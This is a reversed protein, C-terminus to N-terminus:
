VTTFTEHQFSWSSFIEPAQNASASQWYRSQPDTSFGIKNRPTAQWTVRVGGTPTMKKSDVGRNDLNPDPVYEWKTPDGLNLNRNAGAYFKTSEQWRMSAFFWAHNKWLPGGVAPNFDYLTKLENPSSLGQAKLEDTYNNGQWASGVRFGFISGHYTNGGEKPILNMTFGSGYSDATGSSYDMSVEAATGMDPVFNSAWGSSLLNRATLGNIMLRQDFPRSGHVTFITIDMNGTGGVDQSNGGNFSSLTVGPVLVAYAYQSRGSPLAAQVESTIIAAKNTNQIDVTPAEGSVTVTEAVSGVTLDANVTVTNSGTLEVRERKVTSFGTLTVTVTYLGPRLDVIKYQGTGDTTVSRVKEILAPSSAEVTAGPLVAGSADRVIGAISAQARAISPALVLCLLALAARLKLQSMGEGKQKVSMSGM